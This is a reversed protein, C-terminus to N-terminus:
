GGGGRMKENNNNSNKNKGRKRTQSGDTAGDTKRFDIFYLHAHEGVELVLGHHRLGAQLGALHEEDVELGAVDHGVIYDLLLVGVPQRVGVPEIRVEDVDVAPAGM